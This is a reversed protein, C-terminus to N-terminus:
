ILTFNRTSQHIHRRKFLFNLNPKYKAPIWFTGALIRHLHGRFIGFFNLISKVATTFLLFFALWEFQFLSMKFWGLQCAFPLFEGVARLIVICINWYNDSNTDYLGALIVLNFILCGQFTCSQYKAGEVLVHSIISRNIWSKYDLVGSLNPCVNSVM